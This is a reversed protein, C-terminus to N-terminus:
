KSESEFVMREALIQVAAKNSELIVETLCCVRVHITSEHDNDTMSDRCVMLSYVTVTAEVRHTMANCRRWFEKVAKGM